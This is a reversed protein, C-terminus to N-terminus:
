KKEDKKGNWFRHRNKHLPSHHLIRWRYTESYGPTTRLVGSSPTMKLTRCCMRSPTEDMTTEPWTRQALYNPAARDTGSGAGGPQLVCPRRKSAGTRGDNRTLTRRGSLWFTSYVASAHDLFLQCSIIRTKLGLGWRATPALLLARVPIKSPRLKGFTSCNQMASLWNRKCNPRSCESYM